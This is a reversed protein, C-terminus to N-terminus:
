FIFFAKLVFYGTYTDSRSSLLVLLYDWPSFKHLQFSCFWQSYPFFLPPPPPLPSTSLHFSARHHALFFMVLFLDHTSQDLSLEKIKVYWWGCQPCSMPLRKKKLSWFSVSSLFFSFYCLNFSGQLTSFLISGWFHFLQTSCLRLFLHLFPSFLM